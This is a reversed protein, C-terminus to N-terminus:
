GQMRMYLKGFWWFYESDSLGGADRFGDLQGFIRKYEGKRDACKASDAEDCAHFLKNIFTTKNTM